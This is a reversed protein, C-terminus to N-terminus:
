LKSGDKADKTADQLRLWGIVLERWKGYKSTWKPYRDTIDSGVEANNYSILAEPQVYDNV